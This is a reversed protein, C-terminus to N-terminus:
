QSICSYSIPPHPNREKPRRGAVYPLYLDTVSRKGDAKPNVSVLRRNFLLDKDAIQQMFVANSGWLNQRSNRMFSAM